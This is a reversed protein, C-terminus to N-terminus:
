IAEQEKTEGCCEDSQSGSHSGEEQFNEFNRENEPSSPPNAGSQSQILPLHPFPNGLSQRLNNQNKRPMVRNKVFDLSHKCFFTNSDIILNMDALIM